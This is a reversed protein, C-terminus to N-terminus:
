AAFRDIQITCNLSSDRIAQFGIKEMVDQDGGEANVADEQYKIRPFTVVYAQSNKEVKFSLSSETGAVYKEYLSKSLFYAEMTGNVSIKGAGISANGLTGIAPKGRLANGVTFEIGKLLASNVAAGAELVTGVNSVANMVDTSTAATITGSTPTAISVASNKGMFEFSGTLISNAQVSMQMQSVIMGRFLFYVIPSMDLHERMISFSRQSTGNRIMGDNRLTVTAGATEVDAPAPSTTIAGVAVTLVKFHGDITSDDFGTIHLWQGAVVGASVFGNGSDTFGDATAAITTEVMTFAASWASDFLAAAFLDDYSGYSLEFNNGGGAEAGTQILDAIQRDSRIEESITNEINFNLSEGTFRLAQYASTAPSVGWTVEEIFSLRTRNSDGM